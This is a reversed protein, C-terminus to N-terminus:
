TKDHLLVPPFGSRVKQFQEPRRQFAANAVLEALGGIDDMKLPRERASAQTADLRVSTAAQWDPRG